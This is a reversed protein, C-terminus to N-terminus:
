GVFVFLKLFSCLIYYMKYSIVAAASKRLKVALEMCDQNELSKAVANKLSLRFNCDFVDYDNM